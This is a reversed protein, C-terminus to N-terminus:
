DFELYPDYGFIEFDWYFIRYLKMLAWKDVRATMAQVSRKLTDDNKTDIKTGKNAGILYFKEHDIKKPYLISDMMFISDQHSTEAKMIIDYNIHCIGSYYVLPLFHSNAHGSILNTNSLEETVLWKVFANFSTYYTSKTDDLYRKETEYKQSAEIKKKFFKTVPHDFGGPFRKWKGHWASIIKAFPHRINLITFTSQQLNKTDDTMKRLEIKHLLTKLANVAKEKDVHDPNGDSDSPNQFLYNYIYGQFQNPTDNKDNKTTRNQLNQQNFEKLLKHRSSILHPLLRYIGNTLKSNELQETLEDVPIDLYLAAFLIDLNTSGSKPALNVALLPFDPNKNNNETSSSSKKLGYVSDPVEDNIVNLSTWIYELYVNQLSSKEYKLYKQCSSQIQNLRRANEQCHTQDVCNKLPNKSLSSIRPLILIKVLLFTSFVSTIIIILIKKRYM